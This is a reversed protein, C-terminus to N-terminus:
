KFLSKFVDWLTVARPTGMKELYEPNAYMYDRMAWLKAGILMYGDTFQYRMVMLMYPWGECQYYSDGTWESSELKDIAISGTHTYHIHPIGLEPYAKTIETGVHTIKDGESFRLEEPLHQQIDLPLIPPPGALEFERRKDFYYSTEYLKFKEQIGHQKVLKKILQDDIVIM